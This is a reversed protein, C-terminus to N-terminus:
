DRLMVLDLFTEIGEATLPMKQERALSTACAVANKIQRGNLDRRALRLLDSGSIASQDAAEAAKDIFNRWIAARSEEDLAPYTIKIHVRGICSLTKIM